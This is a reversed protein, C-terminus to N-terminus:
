FNTRLIAPRKAREPECKVKREAAYVREFDEMTELVREAEKDRESLITELFETSKLGERVSIGLKNLEKQCLRVDLVKAVAVLREGM